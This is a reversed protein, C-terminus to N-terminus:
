NVRPVIIRDFDESIRSATTLSEKAAQAIEEKSPRGRKNQGEKPEWGKDLIYKNASFAEKGGTKAETMVRALSQSKMRVELEKRWKEVYPQFWKCQCLMQWHDWGDLYQVAFRYETPDNVEMYLQYLSPYGQHEREKLTYLVTSKDSLTEEFFLAKLYRGNSVPHRFKNTDSM